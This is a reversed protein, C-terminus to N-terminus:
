NMYLDWISTFYAPDRILQQVSVIEAGAVNYLAQAFKNLTKGKAIEFNAHAIASLLKDLKELDVNFTNEM